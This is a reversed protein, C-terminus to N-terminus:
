PCFGMPEATIRLRNTFLLQGPLDAPKWRAAVLLSDRAEGGHARELIQDQDRRVAWARDNQVRASGRIPSFEEAQTNWTNKHNKLVQDMSMNKLM